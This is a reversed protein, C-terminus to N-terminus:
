RERVFEIEFSQQMAPQKYEGVLKDAIADHQLIYTAGPYGTDNLEVLVQLKAGGEYWAARSVHISRGQQPNFYGAELVGGTAGGKIELVYGGDERVWRGTVKRVQEPISAAARGAAPAQAAAPAAAKPAPAETRQGCGAVLSAAIVFCVASGRVLVPTM